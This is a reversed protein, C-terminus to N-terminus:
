VYCTTNLLEEWFHKPLSNKGLMTRTMKQMIRNKREIIRKKPTRPSSVNHFICNRECFSKFEVNEFEIGHDSKISSICFCKRIQVKMCFIEFVKFSEHKHALFYIWTYRSYDDVIVFDYKKGGISLIQTPGFLNIHLLQLSRTTSVVDKSKFSTKIQKGQQCTECLHHTKWCIKLLGKM